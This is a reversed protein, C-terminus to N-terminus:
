EKGLALDVPWCGRAHEGGGRCHALVEPNDCGAEELADALIPLDNFRREDYIVQALRVVASTRWEPKCSVPRFPNGFIDRLLTAQAATMEAYNPEDAPISVVAWAAAVAFEDAVRAAVMQLWCERTQYGFVESVDYRASESAAEAAQRLEERSALNDAYREGAEVARLGDPYILDPGYRVRMGAAAFLRLKRDSARGHLFELM